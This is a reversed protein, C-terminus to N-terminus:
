CFARVMVAGGVPLTALALAIKGTVLMRSNRGRAWGIQFGGARSPRSGGAPSPDRDGRADKPRPSVGARDDVAQDM